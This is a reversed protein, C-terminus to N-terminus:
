IRHRPQSTLTIGGTQRCQCLGVPHFEYQSDRRLFFHIGASQFVRIAESTPGSLAELAKMGEAFGELCTCQFLDGAQAPLAIDRERLFAKEPGFDQGPSRLRDLGAGTRIATYRAIMVHLSPFCFSNRDGLHILLSDLDLLPGPRSALTSDLRSFVKHAALFLSELGEIFAAIEPLARAGFRLHLWGVSGIWLRTFGLYCPFWTRDFPILADLRMDLPIRRHGRPRFFQPAFYIRFINGLLRLYLRRFRSDRILLWYTRRISAASTIPHDPPKSGPM